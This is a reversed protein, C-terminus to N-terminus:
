QLHSRISLITLARVVLLDADVEELSLNTGNPLKTVLRDRDELEDAVCEGHALDDEVDADDYTHYRWAHM